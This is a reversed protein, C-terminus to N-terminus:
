RVYSGERSKIILMVSDFPFSRATHDIMWVARGREIARSRLCAMLNEVGEASLHETPEDWMEFDAIIGRSMLILNSLGLECALRLRQYEGGSWAQLPTTVTSDGKMVGIYFRHSVSGSKNEKVTHFKVKYEPMGLSNLSNNVELELALLAQSVVHLRVRKFGEVWYEAQHKDVEFSNIDAKLAEIESDRRKLEAQLDVVRSEHPNVAAVAEQHATEAAKLMEKCHGVHSEAERIHTDHSDISKRLNAVEKQRQAVVDAAKRELDVLRHYEEGREQAHAQALTEADLKRGKYHEIESEIGSVKDDVPELDDTEISKIDDFIQECRGVAEALCTEKHEVSIPQLCTPCQAGSEMREIVGRADTAFRLEARRQNLRSVVEDRAKSAAALDENTLRDIEGQFKIAQTQDVSLDPKVQANERAQTHHKIAEELKIEAPKTDALPTNKVRELRDEAESLSIKRENVGSIRSAVLTTRKGEFEDRLRTEEAIAERTAENAGRLGAMELGFTQIKEALAKAAGKATESAQLWYDLDLVEDLVRLQEAPSLDFFMPSFQGRILALRFLQEDLGAVSVSATTDMEAGNITFSNRGSSRKRAYETDKGDVTIVLSVACDDEGNTVVNDAKLGRVTKGFLAYFVADFVTSKGVGNAGLRPEDQNEGAIFHLGPSRTLSIQHDGRFSKFNRLTLSKISINM